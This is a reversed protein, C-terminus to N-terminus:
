PVGEEMRKMEDQALQLGRGLLKEAEGFYFEAEGLSSQFEALQHRPLDATTRGSAGLTTGAELLATIGYAATEMTRLFGQHLEQYESLAEPLTVSYAYEYYRAAEDTVEHMNVLWNLDAPRKQGGSYVAQGSSDIETMRVLERNVGQMVRLLGLMHQLYDVRILRRQAPTYGELLPHPTPSPTPFSIAIPAPTPVADGGANGGCAVVLLALTALSLFGFVIRRRGVRGAPGAPFSARSASSVRIM